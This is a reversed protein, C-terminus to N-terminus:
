SGKKKSKPSKRRKVQPEFGAPSAVLDSDIFVKERRSERLSLGAVPGPRLVDVLAYFIMAPCRWVLTTSTRATEMGSAFTAQVREILDSSRRGRLEVLLLLNVSFVIYAGLVDVAANSRIRSNVGAVM